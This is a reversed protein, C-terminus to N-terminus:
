KDSGKPTSFQQLKDKYEPNQAGYPQLESRPSMSFHPRFVEFMSALRIPNFDDGELGHFRFPNPRNNSSSVSLINSMDTEYYNLIMSFADPKFDNVVGDGGPDEGEKPHNISKLWGNINYVFDIGQLNGALEVRRLPGYNYYFYKAQLTANAIIGDTGTSVAILRKDADYDYHHYFADKLGTAEYAKHAVELVNGLFDYTYELVFILDLGTPQQAMWAVRGQEDYSYWTKIHENETWSVGGRVFVQTYIGGISTTTFNDAEEDYYTRM